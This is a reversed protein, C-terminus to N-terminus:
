SKGKLVYQVLDMEKLYNPVPRYKEEWRRSPYIFLRKVWADQNRVFIPYESLYKRRNLRM